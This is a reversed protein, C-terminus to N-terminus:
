GEVSQTDSDENAKEASAKADEARPDLAIERAVTREGVRVAEARAAKDVKAAARRADKAAGKGAGCSCPWRGAEWGHGGCKACAAATSTM